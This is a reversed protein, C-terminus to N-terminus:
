RMRFSEDVAVRARQDSFLSSTNFEFCYTKLSLGIRLPPYWDKRNQSLNGIM